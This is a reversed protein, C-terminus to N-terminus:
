ARKLTEKLVEYIERFSALDLNERTTHYDECHPGCTAIDIGPIGASIYGHELGGHVAIPTLERGTVDRYAGMLLERIDSHEKYQWGPSYGKFTTGYGFLNSLEIIEDSQEFLNSDLEARAFYRLVISNEDTRITALNESATTLGKIKMSKHRFGNPLVFLYKVLDASDQASLVPQAESSTLTVCVNPDSFLYENKLWDNFRSTVALLQEMPEPSAFVADCLIPIANDKSGGNISAVRIDAKKSLEHLVRSMLKIANGKEESIFPGSHGGELGDVRIRYFPENSSEKQVKKEAIVRQSGCSSVYCTNGGMDDLGILRKATLDDFALERAGDCGTEEQVTFVCELRPHPLTDDDLLALMYAAGVGDDAGLTTGRARVLGNDVYISIPDKEFDHEVGPDKECVMDIHGQLMLPPHDEYGHSADKYVIVNFNEYQKYKLNHDVAFQVIYDSLPKEHYSGHPHKCIEEFYREPAFSQDLVYDM